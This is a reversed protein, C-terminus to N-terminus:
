ISPVRRRAGTRFSFNRSSVNPVNRSRSGYADLRRPITPGLIRLTRDSGKSNVNVHNEIWGLANDWQTRNIGTTPQEAVLFVLLGAAYTDDYGHAENTSHISSRFLILGPCLERQRTAEEDKDQDERSSYETMRAKWPLWSSDYTFYQDQAAQQVAEMSRDFQLNLHTHLPDPVTALIIRTGAPLKWQAPEQGPVVDLYRDILAAIEGPASRGQEGQDVFESCSTEAPQTGAPMHEAATSTPRESTKQLSPGATFRAGAVLVAFIALIGMGRQM